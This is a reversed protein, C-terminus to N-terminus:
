RNFWLVHTAWKPFKFKLAGNKYFVESPKIFVNSKAIKTALRGAGDYDIFGGNAVHALFAKVTMLNGEMELEEKENKYYTFDKFKLEEKKSDEILMEEVSTGVFVVSKNKM